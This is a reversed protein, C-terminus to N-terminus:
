HQTLGTGFARGSMASAKALLQRREINTTFLSLTLEETEFRKSRAKLNRSCCVCTKKKTREKNRFSRDSKLRILLETDDHDM